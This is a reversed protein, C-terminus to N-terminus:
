HTVQIGFKERVQGLPVDLFEDFNDWQWRERMRICRWITIPVLYLSSVATHVIDVWQLEEYIETSEPLRYGKIVTWGAMTGFISSIKVVLEDNLSIDCGFVVHSADHCRFFEDAEPTLVRTKFHQKNAAFFEAIGESLTQKSDQEQYDLM